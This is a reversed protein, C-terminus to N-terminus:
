KKTIMYILFAVMIILVILSNYMDSKRKKDSLGVVMSTLIGGILGGIHGYVDIGPLMFGLFLNILIVPIINSKISSNITARYNYSFYLLSGFLGFIAGSAGISYSNSTMFVCSLLSGILGSVIYIFLFKLRGYYREIQTGLIYLAYMNCFLHILGSHLFMCTFLRYYEGRQVLQYSNAGYNIFLNYLSPSLMLIWILVNIAILTYTVIPKKIDFIKKLKKEEKETKENMDSTLAFLDIANSKKSDIKEKISPFINVLFENKKLDTIKNAVVVSIHKTDETKIDEKTDVLINIMDIHLSLTKAKINNMIFGAKALDNEFQENNHIYGTNIRILKYKKEFNELWIENKVGSVIVPKYNEEMVFYHLIKLVIDDKIGVKLEKQM